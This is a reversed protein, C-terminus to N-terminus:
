FRYRTGVSNLVFAEPMERALLETAEFGTCHMPAVLRPEMAKVEQVTREILSNRAGTLHFGGLVAWIRDVGAIERAYHLINLIGAHSCGSLVVLGKGSINLVVSQDDPIDDHILEDGERYRAHPMGKEFDTRRPVPGTIWCGDSLQVSGEVLQVQAGASEWEERPVQRPGIKHGDKRVTWRERFIEPAVWVPLPKGVMRILPVLAAVHDPHGHSVIVQDVIRPDIKMAELNHPLAQPTYGADLLLAEDKGKLEILASFGHEALPVSEHQDMREVGEQGKLITNSYNDVLITITSGAMGASFAVDTM